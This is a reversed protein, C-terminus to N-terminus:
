QLKVLGSSSIASPFGKCPQAAITASAINVSQAMMALCGWPTPQISPSNAITLAGSPAYVLGSMSWNNGSGAAFNIGTTQSYLAINSQGGTPSSSIPAALNFSGGTINISGGRIAITSGIGQFNGGSQTFGGGLFSITGTGNTISGNVGFQLTGGNMTIRGANYFDLDGTGFNTMAPANNTLSGGYFFYPGSGFSLLPASSNSGNTINCNYIYFPGNAFKITSYGNNRITGNFLYVPGNGFFIGGANATMNANPMYLEGDGLSITGNNNFIQGGIIKTGGGFTMTGGASMYIDRQVSLLADGITLNADGAAYISSKFVLTVNAGLGINLKTTSNPQLIFDGAFVYCGSFFKLTNNGTLTTTGSITTPYSCTPDATATGSFLPTADILTLAGIRLGVPVSVYGNSSTYTTDTGVPTAPSMPLKPSTTPYPWTAMAALHSNLAAIQSTGTIPDIPTQGYSFNKAGPTLSGAAGIFPAESAQSTGINVASVNLSSSNVQLQTTASVICNSGSLTSSLQLSVTSQLSTVCDGAAPNPVSSKSKAGIIMSVADALANILLPAQPTAVTTTLNTSNGSGAGTVNLTSTGFGNITILNKATALATTSVVGNVVAQPTAAAALSALDATRQSQLKVAYLQSVQMSVAGATSLIIMFAAGLYSVSGREDNWVLQVLPRM